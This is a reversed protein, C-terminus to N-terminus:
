PAGGRDYRRRIRGIAAMLLKEIILSCLIVVVTWAFLDVTELYLKSEYLMRGISRPPVTLVEAAVGAKWALGLSARCASLLYPAVAPAYVRKIQRWPSFGYIQAMELLDPEAARVGASVNSWVVPLVMLIVIVCPLFSRGVWILALLIFSAVPTSKVITLLPALLAGLLAFRSTGAALLVGAAIGIITGCLIRALSVATVRWFGATAALVTLRGAVALPGPLLLEQDVLRATLAWLGLWFALILIGKEIRKVRDM